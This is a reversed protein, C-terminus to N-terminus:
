GEQIYFSEVGSELSSSAAKKGDTTVVHAALDGAFTVTAGSIPLGTEADSTVVQMAVNQTQYEPVGQVTNSPDNSKNKSCGMMAAMALTSIILSSKRIMTREEHNRLYYNILLKNVIFYVSYWTFIM